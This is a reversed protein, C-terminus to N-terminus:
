YYNEEKIKKKLISYNDLANDEIDNYSEHSCMYKLSIIIKYM